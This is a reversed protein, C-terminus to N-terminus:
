LGHAWLTAAGSIDATVSSWYSSLGGLMVTSQGTVLNYQETVHARSHARSTCPLGWVFKQRGGGM